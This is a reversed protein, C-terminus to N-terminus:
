GHHLVPARKLADELRRLADDLPASEPARFRERQFAVVFREAEASVEPGAAARVRALVERETEHPAATVGARKLLSLYRDYVRGLRPDSARPARRTVERQGRRRLRRGFTLAATVLVLGWMVPSTLVAELAAGPRHRVLAWARSWTQSVADRLQAWAGEDHRVDLAADRSRWPTPDFAVWRREDALYVEVWAHADRARLTTRGTLPNPESPAFGNVMRTPLGRTRLLLAMASAFYICFAPRRERVLVTLPEGNGRLNVDLSYEFGERFFTEVAEAQARPAQQGAVISEALPALQERLAAPVETVSAATPPHEEPLLEAGRELQVTLGPADTVQLVFDGGLTAETGRVARLGAPGPIVGGLAVLPTVELEIGREGALPVKRGRWTDSSSWGSGHFVDLVGTRLYRPALGRLEVLPQLSLPASIRTPLDITGANLTSVGSRRIIQGAIEILWDESALLARSLPWAIGSTLVLFLSFTIHGVAGARDMRHGVYLALLSSAGLLALAGMLPASPPVTVSVCALLWASLWAVPPHETLVSWSGVGLLAGVLPGLVLTPLPGLPPPATLALVLGALAGAGGVLLARSPHRRARWGFGISLLLGGLVVGNVLWRDHAVANVVVAAGVVSAEASRRLRDRIASM